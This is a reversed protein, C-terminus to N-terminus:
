KKKKREVLTELAGLLLPAASRLEARHAVTLGRLVREGQPTVRLLVERRDADSSRREVLGRDISRQALEVASNHRLQLREALARVTPRRDPPLGKLALLLQHQQPEIKADRAARESFNLFRRIVYRLEALARYERASVDPRVPM